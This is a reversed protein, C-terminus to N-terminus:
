AAHAVSGVPQPRSDRLWLAFVAVAYLMRSHDFTGERHEDFLSRVGAPDLFGGAEAGGDNWTERAFDGLRGRFWDALPVQFGQKPRRTVGPPLWPAIARRLLVKGTGRRLKQRAPVSLAWDVVDRSLLPVRAELSHAMSMRDLRTLMASPMNLTLDALLFQDMADMGQQSEGFYEAELRAFAGRAGFAANMGGSFVRDRVAHESIQTAAFFQQYGDPLRLFEGLRRSRQAFLGGGSFRGAADVLPRLARVLPRCREIARANRHRKYGAFLEDGGEGCLVVKVHERALRSACWTPIAAMDAFPEDFCRQVEPLLDVAMAADLPFVHHTCGLYDAVERAAATEDVRAGPYGVTFTPVPGVARAMAALVASSDVGGSLFAGVPVDSQMHKEVTAQLVERMRDSWEADSAAESRGRAARWFRSEVPEGDPGVKLVCGPEVTSVERFITRPRRVHGFSFFDHVARDDVTFSHGPLLRLAKLESAFAFGGRQSTVYLPKIGLPDRALTLRRSRADWVAAAFMGELRPWAGDGWFAIAALLTETDSRTRFVHGSGALEARLERHNYIEGNFVVALRGDGGIMPQCGGPGDLISLRRMGFGFDDDLHVGHDDPGRHAISDLQAHVDRGSAPRGARRYWGAIGCM